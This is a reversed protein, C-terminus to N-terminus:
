GEGSRRTDLERPAPPVEWSWDGAIIEARTAQVDAHDHFPCADKSLVQIADATKDSQALVRALGCYSEAGAGLEIATRFEQEARAYEDFFTDLIDGLEQHAEWNHPNCKVASECCRRYDEPGYGNEKDCRQMLIALDYWLTSSEPHERLAALCLEVVEKSAPQGAQPWQREIEDLFWNADMEACEQYRRLM